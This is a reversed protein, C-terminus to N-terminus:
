FVAPLCLSLTDNHFSFWKSQFTRWYNNLLFFVTGMVKNKDGVPGHCPTCYLLGCFRRAQIVYILMSQDISQNNVVWDTRTVQKRSAGPCVADSPLVCPHQGQSKILTSIGAKPCCPLHQPTTPTYFLIAPHQTRGQLTISSSYLSMNIHIDSM